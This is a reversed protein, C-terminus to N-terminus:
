TVTGIDVTTTDGSKFDKWEDVTEPIILTQPHHHQRNFSSGSKEKLASLHNQFESDTVDTHSPILARSLLQTRTSSYESSGIISPMFYAMEFICWHGVLFGGTLLYECNYRCDTVSWYDCKRLRSSRSVMRSYLLNPAKFGRRVEPRSFRESYCYGEGTRMVHWIKKRRWSGLRTSTRPSM